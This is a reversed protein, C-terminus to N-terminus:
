KHGEGWKKGRTHTNPNFPKQARDAAENGKTHTTHPSYYYNRKTNRPNRNRNQSSQHFRKRGGSFHSPQLRTSPKASVNQRNKAPFFKHLGGQEKVVETFARDEFLHTESPPIDHLIKNLAKNQPKYIERRQQIVEARRGCTYQILSDSNKRFQSDAAVFDKGVKRKMETPLSDLLSQFIIRQQLLGNTIAGLALDFRELTCISKWEPAVGALLNNPKLACFAPTAQFQKQTEAYRVNRWEADRFKQCKLAHELAKPDAKSIKPEQVVTTPTFDFVPESDSGESDQLEVLQRQADVIRARLETEKSHKSPRNEDESFTSDPHSEFSRDLDEQTTNFTEPRNLTAPSQQILQKINENQESQMKIMKDFLLMQQSLVSALLHENSGQAPTSCSPAHETSPPPTPASRKAQHVEAEAVIPRKKGRLDGNLEQSAETRKMLRPKLTAVTDVFSSYSPGHIKEM